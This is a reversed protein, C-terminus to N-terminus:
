HQQSLNRLITRCVFVLLTGKKGCKKCVADKAPCASRPHRGMGCFYCRTSSQTSACTNEEKIQLDSHPNYPDCQSSCPDNTPAAAAAYVPKFSLNQQEAMELSQALEIATKLDLKKQELLRQRITSSAIGSIFAERVSNDRYKEATVAEFDCDKALTQLKQIFEVLSEGSQQKATALLHRAFITNKPKIFTNELLTIADDYSEAESIIEYVRLGVFNILVNLQQDPEVEASTIFNDFTRKWYKFAATAQPSSPDEDFKAPRLIKEM